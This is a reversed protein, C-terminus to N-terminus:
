RGENQSSDSSIVSLKLAHALQDVGASLSDFLMQADRLNDIQAMPELRKALEYPGGVTFNGIAGRLTHVAQKFGPADNANIAQRIQDILPPFDELFMKVLEAFLRLDGGIRDLMATPDFAEATSQQDSQGVMSM